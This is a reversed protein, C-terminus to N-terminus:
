KWVNDWFVACIYFSFDVVRGQIPLIICKLAAINNTIIHSIILKYLVFYIYM